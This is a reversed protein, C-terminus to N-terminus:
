RRHRGALGGHAAPRGAPPPTAHIREGTKGSLLEITTGSEAKVALAIDRIGDGDVDPGVAWPPGWHWDDIAVETLVKLEAGDRGSHLAIVLHKQVILDDIGDGDVDGVPVVPGTVGPITFLAHQLRTPAMRPNHALTQSALLAISLALCIM